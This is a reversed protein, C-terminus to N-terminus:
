SALVKAECKVLGLTILHTILGRQKCYSECDEHDVDVSTSHSITMTYINLQYEYRSSFVEVVEYFHLAMVVKYPEDLVFFGSSSVAIVVENKPLRPGAIRPSTLSVM